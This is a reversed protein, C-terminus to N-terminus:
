LIPIMYGVLNQCNKLSQCSMFTDVEQTDLTALHVNDGFGECAAKTDTWNKVEVNDVWFNGESTNTFCCPVFRNQPLFFFMSYLDDIITELVECPSRKLHM